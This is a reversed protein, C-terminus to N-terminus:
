RYDLFNYEEEKELIIGHMMDADFYLDAESHRKRVVPQYFSYALVEARGPSDLGRKKMDKKSELIYKGAHKGSTALFLHPAM